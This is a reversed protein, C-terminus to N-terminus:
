RLFDKKYDDNDTKIAGILYKRGGGKNKEAQCYSRYFLIECQFDSRICESDICDALEKAKDLAIKAEQYNDEGMGILVEAKKLYYTTLWMCNSNDINILEEIAKLAEPYKKDEIFGLCKNRKEEIEKEEKYLYDQAASTVTKAIKYQPMEKSLDIVNKIIKKYDM